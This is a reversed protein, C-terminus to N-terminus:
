YKHRAGSSTGATAGALRAHPVPKPLPGRPGHGHGRGHSHDRNAWYVPAYGYIPDPDAQQDAYLDNQENQRRLIDNEGQLRGNYAAEDVLAQQRAEDDRQEATAVQMEAEAQMKLQHADVLDNYLVGLHHSDAYNKALADQGLNLYHDIIESDSAQHILQSTGGRCPHDTYEIQGTKTCKYISQAGAGGTAVLLLIAISFLRPRTPKTKM